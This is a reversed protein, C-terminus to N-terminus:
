KLQNQAAKANETLRAGPAGSAWDSLVRRAQSIGSWQLIQVARVIRL